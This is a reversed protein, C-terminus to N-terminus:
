VEGEGITVTFPSGSLHQGHWQVSITTEGPERIDYSVDFMFDGNHKVSVYECPIYAGCVGVELLGSGGANACDVQFGGPNELGSIICKSADPPPRECPVQFPSGPVDEDAFKIDINYVGPRPAVYTCHFTGDGNDTCEVAVEAPGSIALGIDGVGANSADVTFEATEQPTSKELGPGYARVESPKPVSAGPAVNVKFPSDGAPKGNYNVKVEYEGVDKPEYACSYTGDGNDTVAVPVPGNPGECSATVGGVGGAESTDVVFDASPMDSDLGEKEVGPGYVKVQSSLSPTMNSYICQTHSNSYSLLAPASIYDCYVSTASYIPPTLQLCMM